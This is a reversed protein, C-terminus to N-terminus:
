TLAVQPRIHAVNGIEGLRPNEKAVDGRQQTIGDAPSFRHALESQEAIAELGVQDDPNFGTTEDDARGQGGIASEAKHGHALGALQRTCHQSDVVGEFVALIPKLDHAIGQGILRPHQDDVIEHVSASRRAHHALHQGIRM